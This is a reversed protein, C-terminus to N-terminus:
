YQHQAEITLFSKITAIIENIEENLKVEYDEIRNKIIYDDYIHRFVKMFGTNWKNKYDKILAADFNMELSGSQTKIEKGEVNIKIDKMGLIIFTIGIEFRFYDSINKTGKWTITMEKTEGQNKERYLSEHLNWREDNLYDYIFEYTEKFNFNASQKLKSKFVKDKIAM